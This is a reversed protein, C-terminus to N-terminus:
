GAWAMWIVLLLLAVGLPPSVYLAFGVFVAVGAWFLPGLEGTASRPARSPDAILVVRGERPVRWRWGEAQAVRDVEDLVVERLRSRGDVSHRGVGTVFCVAPLAEGLVESAREVAEAGLRVSLDHLDCVVLGREEWVHSEVRWPREKAWPM